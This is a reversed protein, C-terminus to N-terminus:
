FDEGAMMAQCAIVQEEGFREKALQMVRETQVEHNVVPPYGHVSDFRGEAGSMACTADLVEELREKVQSRMDPTMTRAAGQMNCEAAIVNFTTGAHFSGISIVGPFIPDLNRSVISQVNVVYHAGIALADVAQHPLGGHGGKGKILIRFEDSAAMVPGPRT